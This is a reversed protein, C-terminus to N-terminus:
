LITFVSLIAYVRCPPNSHDYFLVKLCRVDVVYGLVPTYLKSDKGRMCVFM